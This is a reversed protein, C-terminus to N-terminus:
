RFEERFKRGLISALFVVLFTFIYYTNIRPTVLIVDTYVLLKYKLFFTKIVDDSVEMICESTKPAEGFYVSDLALAYRDVFPIKHFVAIYNFAEDKKILTGTMAMFKEDASKSINCSKIEVLDSKSFFEEANKNTIESKEYFSLTPYTVWFGGLFIIGITVISILIRKKSDM